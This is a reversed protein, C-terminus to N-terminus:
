LIIRITSSAQAVTGYSSACVSPIFTQEKNKNQTYIFLSSNDYFDIGTSQQVRLCYGVDGGIPVYSLQYLLEKALFLDLTRTETDGGFM